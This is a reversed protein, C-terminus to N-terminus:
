AQCSMGNPQSAHASQWRQPRVHADGSNSQTPARTVPPPRIGPGEMVQAEYLGPAVHVTEPTYTEVSGLRPGQRRLAVSAISLAKALGEPDRPITTTARSPGGHANWTTTTPAGLPLARKVAPSPVM